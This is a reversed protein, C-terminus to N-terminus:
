KGGKPFLRAKWAAVTGASIGFAKAIGSQSGHTEVLKTFGDPDIEGVVPSKVVLRDIVEQRAETVEFGGLELQDEFEEQQEISESDADFEEPDPQAPGAGDPTAIPGLDDEVTDYADGTLDALVEYRCARGKGQGDNPFSTIDAPNIKVLVLRYASTGNMTEGIYRKSAFHLGTSCLNSRNPDCRDRDMSVVNGPTHDYRTGDKDAHLSLFQRDVYKVALIHGDSTIGLEHREFWTFLDDRVTKDPNAYINKALAEFATIDLGLTYADRIRVALSSSVPEGDFTLVGGEVALLEADALASRVKRAPDFLDVLEDDTTAPDKIAALIRDFRSDDRSISYSDYRPGVLVTLSKDTLTIPRTTTM